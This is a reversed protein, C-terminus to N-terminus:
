LQTFFSDPDSSQSSSGTTWFVFPFSVTPVGLLCSAIHLAPTGVAPHYLLRPSRPGHLSSQSMTHFCACASNEDVTSCLSFDLSHLASQSPSPPTLVTASRARGSMASSKSRSATHGASMSLTSIPAMQFSCVKLNYHISIITGRKQFHLEGPGQM